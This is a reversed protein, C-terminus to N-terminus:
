FAMFGNDLYLDSLLKIDKAQRAEWYLDGKDAM